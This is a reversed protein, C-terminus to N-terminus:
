FTVTTPVRTPTRPTPSVLGPQGSESFWILARKLLNSPQGPAAAKGSQKGLGQEELPRESLRTQSAQPGLM